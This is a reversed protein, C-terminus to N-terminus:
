PAASIAEVLDGTAEKSANKAIDAQSVMGVLKHGDIVPLRRVAHEKMTRLADEISDDAGITVVDSEQSIEGVTTTRPDRGAAVVKVTVDRDTIMGELRGDDDCIPLSGIDHEAMKCAADEITSDRRAVEAEATMLDRAKM